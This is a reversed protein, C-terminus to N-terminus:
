LSFRGQCQSMQGKQLHFSTSAIRNTIITSIHEAKEFLDKFFFFINLREEASLSFNAPQASCADKCNLMM